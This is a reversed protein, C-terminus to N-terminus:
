KKKIGVFFICLIPVCLSTEAPCALPYVQLAGTIGHSLSVNM